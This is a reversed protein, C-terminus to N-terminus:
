SVLYGHVGFFVATIQLLSRVAAKAECEPSPTRLSMLYKWLDFFRQKHNSGVNAIAKPYIKNEPRSNLNILSKIFALFGSDTISLGRTCRNKPNM